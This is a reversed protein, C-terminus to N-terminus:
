SIRGVLRGDGVLRSSQLSGIIGGSCIKRKTEKPRAVFFAFVCEDRGERHKACERHGCVTSLSLRSLLHFSSESHRYLLKIKIDGVIHIAERISLLVLKMQSVRDPKCIVLAKRYIFVEQLYIGIIVACTRVLSRKIVGRKLIDIIPHLFLGVSHDGLHKVLYRGLCNHIKNVRKSKLSLPRLDVIFVSNAVASKSFFVARLLANFKHVTVFACVKLVILSDSKLLVVLISFIGEHSQQGVLTDANVLIDGRKVALRQVRKETVSLM